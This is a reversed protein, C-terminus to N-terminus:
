NDNVTLEYMASFILGTGGVCLLASIFIPVGTFVSLITLFSLLVGGLLMLASDKM